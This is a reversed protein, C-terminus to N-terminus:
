QCSFVDHVKLSVQLGRFCGVQTCDQHELAHDTHTAMTALVSAHGVLLVHFSPSPTLPWPLAVGATHHRVVREVEKLRLENMALHM